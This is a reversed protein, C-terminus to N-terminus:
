RSMQWDRASLDLAVTYGFIYAGANEVSVNRASKGMVLALEVEWDLQSTVQGINSVKLM